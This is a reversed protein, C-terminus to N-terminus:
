MAGQPKQAYINKCNNLSNYIKLSKNKLSKLLNDREKIFLRYEEDSSPPNCVLSMAVQGVLNSCLNISILKEFQELVKNDFNELQFM